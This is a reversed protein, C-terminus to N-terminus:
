VIFLIDFLFESKFEAWVEDIDVRISGFSSIMNNVNIQTFLYFLSFVFFIKESFIQPTLTINIVYHLICSGYFAKSCKIQQKM